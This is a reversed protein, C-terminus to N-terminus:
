YESKELKERGWVLCQLTEFLTEPMEERYRKLKSWCLLDCTKPLSYKSTCPCKKGEDYKRRICLKQIHRNLPALSLLQNHNIHPGYNDCPYSLECMM